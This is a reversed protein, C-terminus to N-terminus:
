ATEKKGSHMTGSLLSLFHKLKKFQNMNKICGECREHFLTHQCSSAALLPKSAVNTNTHPESVDVMERASVEVVCM